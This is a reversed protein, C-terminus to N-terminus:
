ISDDELEWKVYSEGDIELVGNWPLLVGPYPKEVDEIAKIIEKYAMKAIKLREKPTKEKM